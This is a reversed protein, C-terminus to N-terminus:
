QKEVLHYIVQGPITLLEKLLRRWRAVFLEFLSKYCKIKEPMLMPYGYFYSFAMKMLKWNVLLFMPNCNSEGWRAAVRYKKYYPLKPLAVFATAPHERRSLCPDKLQVLKGEFIMKLLYIQDGAIYTGLQGIKKIFETRFLGYMACFIDVSTKQMNVFKKLRVSRDDDLISLENKSLRLVNAKGDIFKIVSFCCIIQPNGELVDVCKQIYSQECEDDHCIWQFYKGKAIDLVRNHNVIAGCNDNLRFYKVRNDLSAYKRCISETNDTSANDSIILEINRYTQNIISEIAGVIYNDGNYVPLGVSVLPKDSNIALEYEM